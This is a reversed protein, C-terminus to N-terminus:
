VLVHHRVAAQQQRQQGGAEAGRRGAGIRAVVDTRHVAGPPALAPVPELAGHKPRQDTVGERETSVIFVISRLDPTGVALLGDARKVRWTLVFSM